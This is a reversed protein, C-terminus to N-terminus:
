YTRIVPTNPYVYPNFYSPKEYETVTEIEKILNGESDFEREIVTVRSINSMVDGRRSEFGSWVGHCPPIKAM